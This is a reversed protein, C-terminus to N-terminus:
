WKAQLWPLVGESPERLADLHGLADHQNYSNRAKYRLVPDWQTLLNWNIRRQGTLLSPQGYLGAFLLLDDFKHVLFPGKSPYESIALHRCIVAKLALELCYGCLYVCGDYKAGAFLM